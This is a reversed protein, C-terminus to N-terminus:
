LTPIRFDFPSLLWTTLDGPHKGTRLFLRMQDQPLQGRWSTVGTAFGGPVVATLVLLIGAAAPAWRRPLPPRERALLVAAGALLPATVVAYVRTEDLTVLVPAIGAIALLGLVAWSRASRPDRGRRLVRLVAVAVVVLWLPGWLTYLLALPQQTHHHFFADAGLQLYQSRPRLLVIGEVRFYVETIARGILVGGVTCLAALATARVLAMWPPAVTPPDGHAAEADSGADARVPTASVHDPPPDAVVSRVGAAVLAMFVAQEPHTLGALVGVVVVAWRPRVVVLLLGLTFTLPDPQGLWQLSVTVAPSVAVLVTLARATRYGWRRAALVTVVAWAVFLVVLHLRAYAYPETQGLLRSLTPLAVDTLLYDANAAQGFPNVGPRDAVLSMFALNPTAWLGNHVVAVVVGALWWGALRLPALRVDAPPEV